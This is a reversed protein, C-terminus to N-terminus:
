RAEDPRLGASLDDSAVSAAPDDARFDDQGACRASSLSKPEPASPPRASLGAGFLYDARPTREVNRGSFSCTSPSGARESQQEVPLQKHGPTVAKTTKGHRHLQRQPRPRGLSGPRLWVPLHRTAARAASSSNRGAPPCRPACGRPAPAPASGAQEASRSAHQGRLRTGHRRRIGTQLFREAVSDGATM